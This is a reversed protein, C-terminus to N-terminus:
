SPAGVASVTARVVASDRGADDAVVRWPTPSADADAVVVADYNEVHGDSLEAEIHRDVTVTGILAAGGRVEVGQQRLRPALPNADAFADEAEDVLSVDLGREALALALAGGADGGGCVLVSAVPM